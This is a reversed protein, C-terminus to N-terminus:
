ALDPPIGPDVVVAAAQCRKCGARPWWEMENATNWFIEALQDSIKFRQKNIRISCAFCGDEHRQGACRWDVLMEIVDLLTMGSVLREGKSEPHHSNNQQHHDIAPKMAALSAKYEDSGYTLDRLKETNEDFASKEPELLKSADHVIGRETLRLCVDALLKQVERIHKLTEQTSDFAM